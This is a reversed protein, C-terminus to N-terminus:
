IVINPEQDVNWEVDASISLSLEVTWVGGSQNADIAATLKTITNAKLVYSKELPITIVQGNELHFIFTIASSEDDVTPLSVVAIPLRPQDENFEYFNKQMVSMIRTDLFSGTMDFAGYTNQIEIDIERVSSPVNELTLSFMAVKRFLLLSPTAPQAAGVVIPETMGFFLRPSPSGSTVSAIVERMTNGVVAETLNAETTPRGLSDRINGVGVIIYNGVPLNDFDTLRSKTFGAASEATGATLEELEAKTYSVTQNLLYIGNNNERFLLIDLSKIYDTLNEGIFTGVRGTVALDIRGPGSGPKEDEKNSGDDSCGVIFSSLIFIWVVYFRQM